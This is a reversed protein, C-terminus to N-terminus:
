LQSRFLALCMPSREPEIDFPLGSDYCLDTPVQGALWLIDGGRIGASLPSAPRFKGPWKMVKLDTM